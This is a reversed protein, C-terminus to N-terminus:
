WKLNISSDSALKTNHGSATTKEEVMDPKSTKNSTNVGIYDERYAPKCGPMSCGPCREIKDGFIGRITYMTDEDIDMHIIVKSPSATILASILLDEFTPGIEISYSMLDECYDDSLLKRDQDLLWFSGGPQKILHVEENKEEQMDAFSKLLRVFERHEAEMLVKEISCETFRKLYKVYEKLRFTVFGDIILCNSESLYESIMESLSDKSPWIPMICGVDKKVGRVIDNTLSETDRKSLNLQKQALYDKVVKKTYEQDIIDAIAESLANRVEVESPCVTRSGFQKILPMKREGSRYSVSVFEPNFVGCDISEIDVGKDVLGELLPKIKDILGGRFAFSGILIEAM